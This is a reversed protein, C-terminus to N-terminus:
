CGLSQSAAIAGQGLCIFPLLILILPFILPFRLLTIWALCNWILAM